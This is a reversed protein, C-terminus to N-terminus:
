AALTLSHCIYTTNRVFKSCFFYFKSGFNSAVIEQFHSLTQFKIDLRTGRFERFTRVAKMLVAMFINQSFRGLEQSIVPHHAFFEVAQSSVTDCINKHVM